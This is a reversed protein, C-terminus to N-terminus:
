AAERNPGLALTFRPATLAGSEAAKRLVFQNCGSRRTTKLKEPLFGRQHYFTCIEDVTATEFPYGGVWDIWDRWYSMGRRYTRYRSLPSRLRCTDAALFLGIQSAIFSGAILSKGVRGSRVYSRKLLKNLPTWFPQTNYIAVFLRGGSAVPLAANDLAQWMAGTHHLVGWSYVLDFQGLSRLYDADLASGEEVTWQEDGPFFRERLSQAAAVSHPDYDFSHVRAGLRRAALSFLGSGSGIDLMSTGTLDTVDLMERLSDEARAIQQPTLTKLFLQWNKGFEFRQGAAVEQAHCLAQNTM